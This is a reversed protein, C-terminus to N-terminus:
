RLKESSRQQHQRKSSKGRASRQVSHLDEWVGSAHQGANVAKIQIRGDILREPIEQLAFREPVANPALGHVVFPAHDVRPVPRLEFGVLLVEIQGPLSGRQSGRLDLLMIGGLHLEVGAHGIGKSCAQVAKAAVIAGRGAETNACAFVKKGGFLEVRLKGVRIETKSEVVVVHIRQAADRLNQAEEHADRTA